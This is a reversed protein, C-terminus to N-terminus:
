GLKAKGARYMASIEAQSLSRNWAMVSALRGDFGIPAAATSFRGGIVAYGNTTLLPVNVQPASTTVQKVGDLYIAYASGIGTEWNITINHWQGGSISINTVATRANTISSSDAILIVDGTLLQTADGVYIGFPDNSTSSFQALAQGTTANTITSDPRFWISASYLAFSTSMTGHFGMFKTRQNIICGNSSNSYNTHHLAFGTGPEALNRVPDPGQLLEQITPEFGDVVDIRPYIFSATAPPTMTAGYFLYARHRVRTAFPNWIWDSSNDEIASESFRLNGVKGSSTTWVGSDPHAYNAALAPNSINSGPEITGPATSSPWIHGAVLTWVDAGGLSPPTVPEVYHFYPNTGSTIYGNNKFVSWTTGVALGPTHGLYVLGSNAIGTNKRVWVSFRYTKSSDISIFGSNWGGDAQNPSVLAEDVTSSRWVISSTYGFPDEGVIRINESASGNLNYETIGYLSGNGLISGSGASWISYNMLNPSYSKRSSFDVHLKLGEKITQTGGEATSMTFM